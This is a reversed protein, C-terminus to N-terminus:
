QLLANRFGQVLSNCGASKWGAVIGVDCQFYRRLLFEAVEGAVNGHLRGADGMFCRSENGLGDDVAHIIGPEVMRFDGTGAEDVEEQLIVDNVIREFLDQSGAIGIAMCRQAFFVRDLDFVDTGVRCPREVDTVAAAGSIATGQDIEQPSRAIVDLGFVVDVVGAVLHVVQGSGDIGAVQFQQALRCFDRFVAIVAVVDDFRGLGDDVLVTVFVQVHRFFFPQFEELVPGIGFLELGEFAVQGMEVDMIVVPEAFPGEMGIGDLCGALDQFFPTLNIFLVAGQPQFRRIVAVVFVADDDAVVAHRSIQSGIDSIM